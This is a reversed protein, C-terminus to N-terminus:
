NKTFILTKIEIRDFKVGDWVGVPFKEITLTTKEPNLRGTFKAFPELKAAYQKMNEVSSALDRQLGETPNKLHELGSRRRELEKQIRKEEAKNNAAQAAKLDKEFKAIDNEFKAIDQKIHKDVTMSKHLQVYQTLDFSVTAGNVSYTAEQRGTGRASVYVINTDEFNFNLFIYDPAAWRTGKLVSDVKGTPKVESSSDANSSGQNSSSQTSAGRDTMNNCGALVFLLGAATLVACVLSKKM